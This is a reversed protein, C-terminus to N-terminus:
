WTIEFEHYDDGNFPCKTEKIEAEDHKTIIKTISLFYGKFYTCLIPHYRFDKLQFVLYNDNVVSPDPVSFDGVSYHENWYKAAESFTKEYSVFYRMLTKVIFSYKPASLGMKFIDEDSWDFTDKAFLLSLIRWSLPYWKTANIESGFTLPVGAESIKQQLQQLKEEGLTDRIYKEDTKFVAGRVQGDTNKIIEQITEEKLM